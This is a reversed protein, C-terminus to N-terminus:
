RERWERAQKSKQHVMIDDDDENCEVDQSILPVIMRRESQLPEHPIVRARDRQIERKAAKGIEVM